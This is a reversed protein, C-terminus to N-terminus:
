PKTAAGSFDFAFTADKCADQNDSLNPMTLQPWQAAPVRLQSLTAATRGPVVVPGRFPRSVVLNETGNCGPNPQGRRTTAVRVTITVADVQIDFANDNRFQLDLAQARGPTFSSAVNGAIEFTKGKVDKQTAAMVGRLTTTGTHAAARKPTPDPTACAVLVGAVMLLMVLAAGLPTRPELHSRM